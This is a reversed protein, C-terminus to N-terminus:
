RGMLQVEDMVWLCDNNLLGFHTPWRYKNMGYGRNLARSILMDQTGIIIADREPYIDWWEREEGGMLVTVAIRKGERMSSEAFGTVANDDGPSAALIGLRDLWQKTKDRTQEVLVRMPLCYVLRRPTRLRVEDRPDFRRRWLWGLIIADTKGMGTPIKIVEPFM